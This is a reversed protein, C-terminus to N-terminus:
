YIQRAGAVNGLVEEMHIYKYWLQDVRPLLTVARDWVNRARNIFKNKMGFDAYKFWSSHDRYDVELASEWVSRARNFDANQSEEWNAYNNWRLPSTPLYIYLSPPPSKFGLLLLTRILFSNAYCVGM